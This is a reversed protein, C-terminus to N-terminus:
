CIAELVELVKLLRTTDVKGEIVFSFDNFVFSAKQLRSNKDQCFDGCADICADVLEVEVFSNKVALDPVNEQPIQPHTQKLWKYITGKSVGHSKALESIVCGSLSAESLILSKQKSSIKSNKKMIDLEKNM